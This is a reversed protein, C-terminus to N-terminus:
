KANKNMEEFAKEMDEKSMNAMQSQAQQSAKMMQEPSMNKMMMSAAKRMMPNSKMMEAAKRMMAPDAGMAKMRAEEEPGINSMGELMAIMDDDSMNKVQKNVFNMQDESLNQGVVPAATTAQVEPTVSSRKKAVKAHITLRSEEMIDEEFYEQVEDWVRKFAARDVRTAGLSGEQWCEALEEKSLDQERDGRLAAIPPLVSFAQFTVKGTPPKSMMEGVKYMTDIVNPDSSSYADAASAEKMAQVAEDVMDPSIQEMQKKAVEAAAELEEKSMSSMKAQAERSQKMMEEPTMNAMLKQATAMMTPNDKMMKMSILMTDPDMGMAKLQAKQAPDMNEMEAILTAMDDPTMSKMREASEALTKPDSSEEEMMRRIDEPSPTSFLAWQTQAVGVNYQAIGSSSPAFASALPVFLISSLYSFKM